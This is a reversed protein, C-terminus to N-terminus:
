RGGARSYRLTKLDHHIVETTMKRTEANWKRLEITKRAVAVFIRHNVFSEQGSMFVFRTRDNHIVYKRGNFYRTERMNTELTFWNGNDFQTVNM